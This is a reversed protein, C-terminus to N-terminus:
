SVHSENAAQAAAQEIRVIQNDAGMIASKMVHAHAEEDSMAAYAIVIILDGKQVLRAAAGNICIHRPRTGHIVYTAFREGNNIDLVDVKEGHLLDLAGCLEPPLTISGVYNLDADSVTARHIKVRCMERLM